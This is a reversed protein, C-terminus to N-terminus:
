ENQDPKPGPGPLETPLAGTADAPTGPEIGPQSTNANKGDQQVEDRLIKREKSYKFDEKVKDYIYIYQFFRLELGPQPKKEMRASSAGDIKEINM